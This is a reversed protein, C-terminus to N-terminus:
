VPNGITTNAIPAANLVQLSDDFDYDYKTM